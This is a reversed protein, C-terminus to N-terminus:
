KLLKKARNYINENTFGFFSQLDEAKGSLGFRDIGIVDGNLGVYKYWMGSAAAEIAIRKDCSKPLVSEKYEGTENDFLFTSFMNVVRVSVGENELQTAAALAQSVESGTAIIIL